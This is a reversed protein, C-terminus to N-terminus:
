NGNLIGKLSHRRERGMGMKQPIDRIEQVERASRLFHLNFTLRCTLTIPSFARIRHPVPSRQLIKYVGDQKFLSCYACTINCPVSKPRPLCSYNTTAKKPKKHCLLPILDWFNDQVQQKGLVKVFSVCEKTAYKRIEHAKSQKKNCSTNSFHM